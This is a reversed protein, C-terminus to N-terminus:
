AELGTDGDGDERTRHANEEGAIVGILLMSLGDTIAQVQPSYRKGNMGLALLLRRAALNSLTLQVPPGSGDNVGLDIQVDQHGSWHRLVPGTSVKHRHAMGGLSGGRCM